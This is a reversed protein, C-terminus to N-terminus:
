GCIKGENAWIALTRAYLGIYSIFLWPFRGGPIWKAPLREYYYNLSDLYRIEGTAMAYVAILNLRLLLDDHDLTSLSLKDLKARDPVMTRYLLYERIEEESQLLINLPFNYRAVLLNFREGPSPRSAQLLEMFHNPAQITTFHAPVIKGSVLEMLASFIKEESEMWGHNSIYYKTLFNEALKKQNGTTIENKVYGAFPPMEGFCQPVLYPVYASCLEHFRSNLASPINSNM